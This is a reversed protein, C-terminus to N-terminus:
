FKFTLAVGKDTPQLNIKQYENHKKWNSFIMVLGIGSFSAATIHAEKKDIDMATFGLDMFGGAFFMVIGANHMEYHFQLDDIREQSLEQASVFVPFIFLLIFYKVM